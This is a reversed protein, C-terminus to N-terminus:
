CTSSWLRWCSALWASRRDALATGLPLLLLGVVLEPILSTLHCVRPDEGLIGFFAEYWWYIGPPKNNFRELYREGHEAMRSAVYAYNASDYDLHRDALDFRIALGSVVAFSVITVLASCALGAKRFGDAHGPPDNRESGASSM